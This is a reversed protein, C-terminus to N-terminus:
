PCERRRRSPQWQPRRCRLRRDMYAFAFDPNSLVNSANSATAMTYASMGIISPVLSHQGKTHVYVHATIQRHHPGVENLQADQQHAEAGDNNYSGTGIMTAGITGFILLVNLSRGGTLYDTGETKGRSTLYGIVISRSIAYPETVCSIASFSSISTCWLGSRGCAFRRNSSTASRLRGPERPIRM